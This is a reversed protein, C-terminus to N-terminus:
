TARGTMQHVNRDSVQTDPHPMTPSLIWRRVDGIHRKVGDMWHLPCGPEYYVDKLQQTFQPVDVGVVGGTELWAMHTYGDVLFLCLTAIPHFYDTPLLVSSQQGQRSNWNSGKNFTVNGGLLRGIIHEGSATLDCLLRFSLADAEGTLAIIGYRELDQWSRLHKIAEM